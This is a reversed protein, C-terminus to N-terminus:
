VGEDATEQVLLLPLAAVIVWVPKAVPTLLPGEVMVAVELPMLPLVVSVTVSLVGGVVVAVGDGAALAAPQFLVSTVTVSFAM